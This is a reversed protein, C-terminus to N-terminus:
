GAEAVSPLSYHENIFGSNADFSAVAAIAAHGEPAFLENGAATRGAAVTAM